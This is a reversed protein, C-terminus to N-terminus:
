IKPLFVCFVLQSRLILFGDFKWFSMNTFHLVRLINWYYLIWYESTKNDFIKVVSDRARRDTGVVSAEPVVSSGVGSRGANFSWDCGVPGLNDHFGGSILWDDRLIHNISASLSRSLYIYFLRIHQRRTAISAIDDVSM